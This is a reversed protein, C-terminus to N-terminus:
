PVLLLGYGTKTIDCDTSNQYISIGPMYIAINKTMSTVLMGYIYPYDSSTTPVYMSVGLWNAVCYPSTDTGNISFWLQNTGPKLWIETVVGRADVAHANTITAFWILAVTLFKSIWKM